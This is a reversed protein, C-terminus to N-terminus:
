VPADPTEGLYWLGTEFNYTMADIVVLGAQQYKASAELLQRRQQGTTQAIHELHATQAATVSEKNTNQLKTSRDMTGLSTAVMAAVITEGGPGGNIFNALLVEGSPETTDLHLPWYNPVLASPNVVTARGGTGYSVTLHLHPTGANGSSGVHGITTQTETIRAGVDVAVESLHYYETIYGPFDGNHEVRIVIGGDGVDALPIVADTDRSHVNGDPDQYAGPLAVPKSDSARIYGVFAVRGEGCAYVEEGYDALYDLGTHIIGTYDAEGWGASVQRTATDGIGFSYRGEAALPSDFPRKLREPATFYAYVNKGPIKQPKPKTWNNVIAVEAYIRAQAISLREVLGRSASTASGVPVKSPDDAAPVTTGTSPINLGGSIEKQTPGAM